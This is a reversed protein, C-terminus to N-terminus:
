GKLLKLDLIWQCARFVMKSEEEDVLKDCYVKKSDFYLSFWITEAHHEIEYGYNQKIIWSKCINSLHALSSCWFNDNSNECKILWGHYDVGTSGIHLDDYRKIDIVTTELVIGLLEKSIMM